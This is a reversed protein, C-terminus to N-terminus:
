FFFFVAHMQSSVIICLEPYLLLPVDFKRPTTHSPIKLRPSNSVVTCAQIQRSYIFLAFPQVSLIPTKM